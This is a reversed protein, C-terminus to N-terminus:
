IIRKTKNREAEFMKKERLKKGEKEFVKRERFRRKAKNREVEFM